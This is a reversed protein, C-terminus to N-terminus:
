RRRATGFVSRGIERGLATGASRMMSRMGPSNLVQNLVSEDKAPANKPARKAGRSSGTGPSRSPAPEAPEDPEDWSGRAAAEDLEDRAGAPTGGPAPAPEATPAQASSLASEGALRAALLEYASERDIAELYKGAISSAAAREQVATEESPGIRSQPARLVTAAVPTPAGRESLVTIVAEGTGLSTLVQELDYESVPYTRVAARLAKADDPTFARLAHQVRNGLQALVGTPVDGPAQTVFFVGVGKSRILRVAQEVSDLFAKSADKFLLHAEDFFFVLSPKEPNGVEPLDQFLEALLWMLFTSFLVPRDQVGPLELCTIVGRGDADVRLLDATEFEPEGFFDEAGQSILTVLQRLIVGATQRSLGGLDALEAKGDDSLLHQIVARLDKIDLLALGHTDAYHYVLGLSSEQTANLGLVKSLLIPGFATLSARVPAGLGHGGLNLFEVPYGAPQWTQGIGGMRSEIRESPEAPTVLGTLDGKLDALFVPVGADSLQEALVQLTVTKGTGTAGAVLGHRNMSALPIRVPADAVPSGDHLAAGLDITAETFAYGTRIAELQGETSM